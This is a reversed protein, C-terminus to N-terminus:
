GVGIDVNNLSASQPRVFDNSYVLFSEVIAITPHHVIRSAAKCSLPFVIHSIVDFIHPLHSMLLGAPFQDSACTSSGVRCNIRNSRHPCLSILKTISVILTQEEEFQNTM